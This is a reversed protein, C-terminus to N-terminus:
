KQKEKKRILVLNYVMLAIVVCLCIAFVIKPGAPFNLFTFLGVMLGVCIVIFAISLIKYTKM